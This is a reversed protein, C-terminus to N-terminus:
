YCSLYPFTTPSHTKYKKNYFVSFSMPSINNGVGCNVKWLEDHIAMIFQKESQDDFNKGMSKPIKHSFQHSILELKNFFLLISLYPIFTFFTAFSPSVKLTQTFLIMKARTSKLKNIKRTRKTKSIEIKILFKMKRMKLGENSLSSLIIPNWYQYLSFTETPM